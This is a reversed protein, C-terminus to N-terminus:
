RIAKEPTSGYPNTSKSVLKQRSRTIWIGCLYNVMFVAIIIFIASLTKANEM